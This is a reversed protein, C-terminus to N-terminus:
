EVNQVQERIKEIESKMDVVLKTIKVEDSKSGITNVERQMEQLLFELTKGKENRDSMVIDSFQQIHSDLRTIEESIDVKDAYLCIERLVREENEIVGPLVEELRKKLKEQMREVSKATLGKVQELSDKLRQIRQSFDVRISNGELIKMEILADVAEDVVQKLIKKYEEEDFEESYTLIGSENALMQLTIGKDSDIELDRAIKEWAAKLQRALPLNPTVSVPSSDEYSASIRLSIKGRFVRSAVWKRVETELYSLERPLQIFIEQFKRNLSQVEAVFRGNNSNLTARGYATMSKLM